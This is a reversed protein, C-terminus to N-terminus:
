RAWPHEGTGLSICVMGIKIGTAHTMMFSKPNAVRVVIFRPNLAEEKLPLYTCHYNYMMAYM